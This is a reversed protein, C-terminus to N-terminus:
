KLKFLIKYIKRLIMINKFIEKAYKIFSEIVIFIIRLFFMFKNVKQMWIKHIWIKLM